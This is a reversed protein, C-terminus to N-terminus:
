TFVCYCKSITFNFQLFSHEGAQIVHCVGPLDKYVGSHGGTTLLWIIYESSPMAKHVAECNIPFYITDRLNKECLVVFLFTSQFM